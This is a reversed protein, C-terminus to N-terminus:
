RLFADVSVVPVGCEGFGADNAILVDCRNHKACFGQLADEFDQGSVEQCQAIAEEIVARGFPVVQWRAVIWQFFELVAAEDRLIYYITSLMDESVVIQVGEEILKAMLRKAPDHGPRQRELLDLVVNTDLFVKRM